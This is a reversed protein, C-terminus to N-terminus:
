VHHCAFVFLMLYHFVHCTTASWFLLFLFM